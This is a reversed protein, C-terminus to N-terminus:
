RAGKSIAAASAASTTDFGEWPLLQDDPAVVQVTGDAGLVVDCVRWFYDTDANFPDLPVDSGGDGDVDVAHTFPHPGFQQSVRNTALSGSIVRLQANAVPEDGLHWSHVALRYRGPESTRVTINEPGFGGTNDVDLAIGEPTPNFWYVHQGEPTWMHVDLDTWGGVDWTLTARFYFERGEPVTWPVHLTDSLQTCASNSAMLVIDNAGEELVVTTDFVGVPSGAAAESDVLPIIGILRAQGNGILVMTDADINSVTGSVFALGTDEDFGVRNLDFSPCETQAAPPTGGPFRMNLEVDVDEVMAVAYETAYRAHTFSVGRAGASVDVLRYDGNEDTTDTWTRAGDSTDVRAGQLAVGDDDLVRGYIDVTDPPPPPAGGPGPSPLTPAYSGCGTMVVLGAVTLLALLVSAFQLHKM